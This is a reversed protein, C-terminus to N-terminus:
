LTVSMKSLRKPISEVRELSTVNKYNRLYKPESLKIYKFNHKYKAVQHTTVWHLFSDGLLPMVQALDHGQDTLSDFFREEEQNADQGQSSSETIAPQTSLQENKLPRHHHHHHHFKFSCFGQAKWTSFSQHTTGQHHLLGVAPIVPDRHGASRGHNLTWSFWSGHCHPVSGLGNGSDERCHWWSKGEFSASNCMACDPLSKGSLCLSTWQFHSATNMWVYPDTNTNIKTKKTEEQDCPQTIVEKHQPPALSMCGFQNGAPCQLPCTPPHYLKHAIRITM